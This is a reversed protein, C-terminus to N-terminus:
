HDSSQGILIGGKKLPEASRFRLTVNKVQLQTNEGNGITSITFM